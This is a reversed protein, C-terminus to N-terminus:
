AHSPVCTPAVRDATRHLVGALRARVPALRPTRVPEDVVPADPRASYVHASMARTSMIMAAPLYDLM